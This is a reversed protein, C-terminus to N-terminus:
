PTSPKVVSGRRGYKKQAIEKLGDIALAQKKM